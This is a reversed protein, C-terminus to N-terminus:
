PAGPDSRHRVTLMGVAREALDAASRPDAARVRVLGLRSYSSHLGDLAAGDPILQEAAQVGDLRRVADWGEIRELTGRLDPALYRIAAAARYVPAERRRVLEPHAAIDAGSVQQLLLETLDVGTADEVLHIIYDGAQRLHTEVLVPGDAGAIVETHTIGSEVGLASLCTRVHEILLRAEDPPLLSPVLHGVEVKTAEDKFKDTVSFVYHHGRHSIAEVSYEPGEVYREALPPSPELRPATATQTNAFGGALDAASRIVSIGTSARGRTPKVVLPPGVEAFFAELEALSHVQRYPMDEVGAARLRQRMALKDHAYEVTEVSHFPLGLDAAIAAAKDQDLEAFAVVADIACADNIRRAADVWGSLKTDDHLVVVARNEHPEFVWNLAAARCLAVTEFEPSMRRLRPQLDSGGGILLFRTVASGSRPWITAL